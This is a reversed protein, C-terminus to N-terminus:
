AGGGIQTIQRALHSRAGLVVRVHEGPRLTSLPRHGPEVTGGAVPLRVTVDTGSESGSAHLRLTHARLDVEVVDGEATAADSTASTANLGLLPLGIALSLGGVISLLAVRRRVEM